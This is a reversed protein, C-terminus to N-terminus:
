LTSAHTSTAFFTMAINTFAIPRFLGLRRSIRVAFPSQISTTCHSSDLSHTSSLQELAKM